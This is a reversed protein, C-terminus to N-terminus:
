PAPSTVYCQIKNFVYGQSGSGLENFNTTYFYKQTTPNYYRYLPVGLGSGVLYVYGQIWEFNFGAPVENTDQTYFHAGTTPNYYRYFPYLYPGGSAAIKCQVWEYYYGLAGNGLENFNTTYFHDGNGPNYYRYLNKWTPQAFLSSSALLMGLALLLPRIAKVM